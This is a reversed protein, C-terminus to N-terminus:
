AIAMTAFSLRVDTKNLMSQACQELTAGTTVIDDVILIHKNEIEESSVIEFVQEARFRMIRKRFVQSDTKNVKLLLDERFPVGLASAIEKGFSSVQNYGRKRLKQKHIPVPIVMDINKYHRTEALEAGLWAGFLKGIDQQGRYKLNHLIQQTMGKKQFRILATAEQVPTKGYFIHKMTPDDNQHFCALPLEHRCQTCIVNETHQLIQSCGNCIKPFLLNLM